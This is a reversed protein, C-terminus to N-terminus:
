EAAKKTTKKTTTKKAATEVTAETEAEEAPAEAETEEAIGTEDDEWQILPKKRKNDTGALEQAREDTVTIGEKPYVDGPYYAHNKDHLDTFHEIVVYSM